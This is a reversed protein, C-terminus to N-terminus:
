AINELVLFDYPFSEVFDGPLFKANNFEQFHSIHKNLVLPTPLDMESCIDHVFGYFREPAWPGDASYIWSKVIKEERVLRVWIKVM